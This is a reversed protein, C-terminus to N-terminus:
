KLWDAPDVATGDRRVEFHLHNDLALESMGSNGAKGIEGGAVVTDGVQRGTVLLCGYVTSIGGGHDIVVTLGTDNRKEVATVTGAAAAAVSVGQAAQIDIGDHQRWDGLTVSQVIGFGTVTKGRLPWALSAPATAVPEAAQGQGAGAEGLGVEGAVSAGGAAPQGSSLAGPTTAPQTPDAGATEGDSAPVAPSNAGATPVNTRDANGPGSQGPQNPQSDTPSFLTPYVIAAYVTAIVLFLALATILLTRPKIGTRFFRKLPGFDLSLRLRGRADNSDLLIM